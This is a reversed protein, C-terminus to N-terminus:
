LRITLRRELQHATGLFRIIEKEANVPPQIPGTRDTAAVVTKRTVNPTRVSLAILALAIVIERYLIM